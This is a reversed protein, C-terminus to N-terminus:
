GWRLSDLFARFKRDTEDVEDDPDSDAVIGAGAFLTAQKGSLEACRLAIAWDGDGAADMWGIPGAYGGRDFPELEEILARAQERPTGCVAPTPHLVAVLDVASPPPDRLVGEFRTALHWVNATELLVPERDWGLQECMPELSDAIADVVIAHEERNKASAFLAEANARDEEPDGARPASGALPTSRVLAGRKSVLLEPSAGVLISRDKRGNSTGWRLPAIFTFADPDVARLRHALRVPDLDHAASVEVSRALVVKKLEGDRIRRVAEGVGTAYRRASPQEVLQDPTFPERAIGGSPRTPDFPEPETDRAAIEVLWTAGAKTRRVLLSPLKFWAEGAPGFSCQGVAVLGGAADADTTARLRALCDAGLARLAAESVPEWALGIAGAMSTAAVGLGAREFLFPRGDPSGTCAALLDFAPPLPRARVAFGLDPEANM